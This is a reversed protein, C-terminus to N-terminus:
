ALVAMAIFLAIMVCAGFLEGRRGIVAHRVNVYICEGRGDHGGGGEREITLVYRNGNPMEVRLLSAPALHDPHHDILTGAPIQWTAGILEADAPIALDHEVHWREIAKAVQTDDIGGATPVWADAQRLASTHVDAM